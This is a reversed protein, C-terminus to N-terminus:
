SDFPVVARVLTGRGPESSLYLQGGFRQARERMGLLGYHGHPPHDIFDADMGIGDDQVSLSIYGDSCNLRVVLESARAHQLANATAEQCIRLLDSNLESNCAPPKGEIEVRSHISTGSTLQQISQRLSDALSLEDVHEHRLDGVARRAEERCYRVMGRASQISEVAPTQRCQEAAVDLQWSAASLGALLTDHWERAIRNREELVVAYRKRVAHLRFRYLLGIMGAFATALLARFWFAQYVFPLQEIAASSAADSWAGGPDRASVLLEFQGPRLHSYRAIRESGAEVWDQDLGRLRYRFQVREARGLRIATFRVALEHTGPSLRVPTEQRATKGDVEL